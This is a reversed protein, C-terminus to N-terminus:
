PGPTGGVTGLAAPRALSRCRGKVAVACRSRKGARLTRKGPCVLAVATRAHSYGGTRGRRAARSGARKGARRRVASSGGVVGDPAEM